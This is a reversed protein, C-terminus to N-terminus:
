LFSVMKNNFTGGGNFVPGPVAFINDGNLIVLDPKENQVMTMVEYITKQDKKVTFIGGGLHIDNIQMIKFDGDTTFTYHGNELVPELRSEYAVPDFTKIYNSLIINSIGNAAAIVLVVALIIGVIIGLVKLFKKM